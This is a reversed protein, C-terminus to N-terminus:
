IPYATIVWGAADVVVRLIKSPLGSRNVGIADPFEYEMPRGARGPTQPKWKGKQATEKIMRVLDKGRIGESFKGAEPADSEPWHREVIHELRKQSLKFRRGPDEDGPDEDDPPEGPDGPQGYLVDPPTAAPNDARFARESSKAFSVVSDWLAPVNRELHMHPVAILIAGGALWGWPGSLWLPTEMEAGLSLTGVTLALSAGMDAKMVAQYTKETRHAVQDIAPPLYGPEVIHELAYRRDEAARQRCAADCSPERPERPERTPTYPSPKEQTICGSSQSTAHCLDNFATDAHARGPLALALTLLLHRM